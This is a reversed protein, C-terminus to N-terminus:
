YGDCETLVVNGTNEVTFTYTIRDGANYINDGNFDVYTGTKTITIQALPTFTQTDDDTDTVADGTPPAATVTAINTFTGADIDDQTLTYVGTYATNNSAGPPLAIPAGTVIVDPNADNVTVHTLVVNGTNTVTFAYTIRDGANYVGVPDITLMPGPKLSQSVQLLLLHRLTMTLTLLQLVPHLILLCQLLIQLHVM